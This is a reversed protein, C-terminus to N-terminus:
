AEVDLVSTVPGRKEVICGPRVVDVGNERVVQTDREYSAAGAPPPSPGGGGGWFLL